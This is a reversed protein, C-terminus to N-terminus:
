NQLKKKETFSFEIPKMRIYDYGKCNPALNMPKIKLIGSYIIEFTMFSSMLHVVPAISVLPLKGSLMGEFAGSERNYTEKIFPFINLTNLVAKRFKSTFNDSKQLEQFSLNNTNLNYFSEYAISESTFWWACLYPIGYSEIMPIKKDNCERAILISIIPDDLTLCVISVNGLIESINDETIDYFKKINVNPNIQILLNEIVDIKFKGLDQETCIQRNFNSLDFTDNDCLTIHEIGCRVLQEAISGGLGGVGLVSVHSKRLKEQEEITILGINRKFKNWYPLVWNKHKKNDFM